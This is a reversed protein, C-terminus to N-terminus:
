RPDMKFGVPARIERRGEHYMDMMLDMEPPRPPEASWM